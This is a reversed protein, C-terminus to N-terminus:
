AAHARPLLLGADLGGGPTDALDLAGGHARAVAAALALGLGSGPQSRAADGRAFREVLRPKDADALGPGHDVVALRFRDGSRALRVEVPAPAATYKFANDLLNALAQAILRADGRVPASGEIDTTFPRGADEAEAAYLEAVDRAVTALDFDQPAALEGGADLRAISLLADFTRMLEDADMVTQELAARYTAADRPSELLVEIRTKMRALPKRLDHAVHDSVSKVGAVAAEIRGLMHNLHGALLDFEDNQGSAAVRQTLDGAAIAGATRNIGDIRALWQRGLAFGLVLSLLGTLALVVGAATFVVDRLDEAAGAEQAVVLRAGGALVSARAVLDLKETEHPEDADRELGRVRHARGDPPLGEPWAVLDGARKRGQADLLLYHRAGHAAALADIRPALTDAPLTALAGAESALGAELQGAVYRNAYILLAALAVALLLVQLLAYRLALRIASTRLLQRVRAFM